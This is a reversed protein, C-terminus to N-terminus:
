SSTQTGQYRKKMRKQFAHYAYIAVKILELGLLGYTVYLLEQNALMQTHTDEAERIIINNNVHGNSDVTKVETNEESSGFIGM